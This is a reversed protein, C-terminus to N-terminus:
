SGAENAKWAKVYSQWAKVLRRRAREAENPMLTKKVLRKVPSAEGENAQKELESVVGGVLPALREPETAELPLADARSARDSMFERVSDRVTFRLLQWAADVQRKSM